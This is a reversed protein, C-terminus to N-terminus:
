KGSRQQSARSLFTASTPTARLKLKQAKWARVNKWSYGPCAFHPEAWLSCHRTYADGARYASFPALLLRLTAPQFRFYTSVYYLLAHM